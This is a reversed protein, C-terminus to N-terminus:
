RKKGKKNKKGRRKKKDPRREKNPAQRPPPVAATRRERFQRDWEEHALKDNLVAAAERKAQKATPKKRDRAPASLQKDAAVKPADLQSAAESRPFLRTDRLVFVLLGAGGIVLFLNERYLVGIFIALSSFALWLYYPTLPRRNKKPM